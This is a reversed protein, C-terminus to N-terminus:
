SGHLWGTNFVLWLVLTTQWSGNDGASMVIVVGAAVWLSSSLISCYRYRKHHDCCFTRLNDRSAWIESIPIKGQVQSDTMIIQHHPCWYTLTGWENYPPSWEEVGNGLQCPSQSPPPPQQCSVSLKPTVFLTDISLKISSVSWRTKDKTLCTKFVM